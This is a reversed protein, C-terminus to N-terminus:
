ASIEKIEGRRNTNINEIRNTYINGVRNEHYTIGIGKYKSHRRNDILNSICLIKNKWLVFSLNM